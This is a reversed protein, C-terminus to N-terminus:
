GTSAIMESESSTDHAGLILGAIESFRMGDRQRTLHFKNVCFLLFQAKVVRPTVFLMKLLCERAILRENRQDKLYGIKEKNEGRQKDVSVPTLKTKGRARWWRCNLVSSSASHTAKFECSQIWVVRSYIDRGFVSLTAVKDRSM